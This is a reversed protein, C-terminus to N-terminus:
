TNIVEIAKGIVMNGKEDKSVEQNYRTGIKDDYVLTFRPNEMKTGDKILVLFTDNTNINLLYKPPNFLNTGEGAITEYYTAPRGVNYFLIQIHDNPEKVESITIIPMYELKMKKNQFELQTRWLSNSEQLDEIQKQHKRDRAALWIIVILSAVACFAEVQGSTISAIFETLFDMFQYIPNRPM